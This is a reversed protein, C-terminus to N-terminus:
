GFTLLSEWELWSVGKCSSEKRKKWKKEKKKKEWEREKKNLFKKVSKRRDLGVLYINRQKKISKM